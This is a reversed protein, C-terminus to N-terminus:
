EGLWKELKTFGAGNKRSKAEAVLPAADRGFPTSTWITARVAFARRGSLPYREAHEGAAKPYPSWNGSQAIM